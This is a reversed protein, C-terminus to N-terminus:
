NRFKTIGVFVSLDKEFLEKQLRWMSRHEETKEMDLKVHVRMPTVLPQCQAVEQWIEDTFREFQILTDM